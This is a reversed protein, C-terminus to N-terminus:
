KLEGPAISPTPLVKGILAQALKAVLDPSLGKLAPGLFDTLGGLGGLDLDLKPAPWSGDAEGKDIAQCIGHYFVKHVQWATLNANKIEEGLQPNAALTDQLNAMVAITLQAAASHVLLKGFTQFAM